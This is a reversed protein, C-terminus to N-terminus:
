RPGMKKDRRNINRQRPNPQARRLPEEETSVVSPLGTEDGSRSAIGEAWSKIERLMESPKAHRIAFAGTYILGTAGDVSLVDGERITTEGIRCSRGSADIKLPGCAVLCVKGLQRAVVAAHSTRAGRATILADAEAIAAIDATEANERLLIATGDGKVAKVRAPDFVAAGVAIGTGASVARGIPHVGEPVVLDLSEIQDLDIGGLKEVAADATM